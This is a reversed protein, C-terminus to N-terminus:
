KRHSQVFGTPNLTSVWLNAGLKLCVEGGKIGDSSKSIHGWQGPKRFDELDVKCFASVKCYM